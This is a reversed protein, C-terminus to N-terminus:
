AATMISMAINPLKGTDVKSCVLNSNVIGSIALKLGSEYRETVTHALTISETNM